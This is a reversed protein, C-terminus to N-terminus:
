EIEYLAGLSKNGKWFGLFDDMFIETKSMKEEEEEEDEEKKKREKKEMM